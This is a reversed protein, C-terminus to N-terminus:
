PCGKLNCAGFDMKQQHVYDACWELKCNIDACGCAKEIKCVITKYREYEDDTCATGEKTAMAVAPGENSDISSARRLSSATARSVGLACILAWVRLQM